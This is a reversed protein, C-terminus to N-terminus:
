TTGNEKLFIIAETLDIKSKVPLEKELVTTIFAEPLEISEKEFYYIIYSPWIWYGDTFYHIGGMIKHDDPILSEVVTMTVTFAIGNQLYNLIKAKHDYTCNKQYDFYSKANKSDYEKILGIIQM